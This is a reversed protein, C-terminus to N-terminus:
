AASQAGDGEERRVSCGGCSTARNAELRAERAARRAAELEAAVREGTGSYVEDPTEGRFASHPIEQNHATVYFSVHRRLAAVSDLSNLFLWQHKMTRWFAEILSNSFTVDTQALVRHLVGSEVLENVRGNFNEVGGDVVLMPRATGRDVSVARRAAETLVAVANAIEFREDVRFALIRRSFNDIVAHIYARTGDLLRVVTTDVHWAEDPRGTRLGVKPAAPHVRRRPRRWGRERVLRAWTTASAFVKGLRQALVALRTTPVHRYEPATVMDRITGVENPTLQNPARRRCRDGSDPCCADSVAAWAHFRSPSLHLVRLVARLPLVARAREVARKLGDRDEGEPLRKGDLKFGSVRLLALLLGLVTGLIRVRRRLKLVEAQLDVESKDVVDLSVVERQEGRLWGVATTRPVGIETAITPDGTKRVLERLRHDYTMQRRPDCM